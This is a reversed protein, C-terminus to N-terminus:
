TPRWGPPTPSATSSSRARRCPRRAGSRSGSPPAGSSPRPAGSASTGMAAEVRAASRVLARAREVEARGAVLPGDSALAEEAAEAHVPELGADLLDRVTGTVAAFGDALDELGRRLSPEARAARQALM